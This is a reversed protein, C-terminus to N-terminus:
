SMFCSLRRVRCMYIYIYIYNKEDKTDEIGKPIYNDILGGTLGFRTFRNVASCVCVSVCM